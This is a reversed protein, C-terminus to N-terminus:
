ALSLFARAKHETEEFEADATSDSVLGGGARYSIEGDAVLATRIAISTDMAGDYGLYGVAGCYVGRRGRELEAIIEMARRKPAGTISGGPFCARLLLAPSTTSPLRGTVTSVLHHVTPHSEVRFLEPVRISGTECVRGLDNRLLDVIMLNEARDKPSELLAQLQAADAAPDQVRPRTGKIPRTEVLGDRLRLFREPSISLVARGAQELYAGYPAPSQRRLAMYATLPDGHFDARYRRSLNVQYCDGDQIYRMVRQFQERYAAAHTDVQITSMRYNGLPAARQLLRSLQRSTMSAGPLTLLWTTGADRDRLVAWDYLGVAMDPLDASAPSPQPLHVVPYGLEYGFYGMAGGPFPWPGADVRRSALREALVSFPDRRSAQWVGDRRRWLCRGRRSILLEGPAASIIDYRGGAGASDLWVLGGSGRLARAVCAPEIADDLREARVTERM